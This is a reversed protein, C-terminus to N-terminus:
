NSHNGCPIIRPEALRHSPDDEAVWSASYCSVDHYNGHDYRYVTLGSEFASDHTGVVIDRFGNTYNPQLTFTQGFGDLLLMYGSSVKQFVWFPCNGTAGCGAMGQAVVEPQGDRNLDTVLIRTNLAAEQLEMESQIGPHDDMEPRLKGAITAALSKKELRTLSANRLSQDATLERSQRWDWRFSQAISASVVVLVFITATVLRFRLSDLSAM